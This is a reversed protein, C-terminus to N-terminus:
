QLRAQNILGSLPASAGYVGGWRQSLGFAQKSYGDTQRLFSAKDDDEPQINLCCIRKGICPQAEHLSAFSWWRREACIFDCISQPRLQVM